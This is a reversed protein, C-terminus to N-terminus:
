EEVELQINFELDEQVVKTYSQVRSILDKMARKADKYTNYSAELNYMRVKPVMTKPVEWKLIYKM